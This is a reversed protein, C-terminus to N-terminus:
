FNTEVRLVNEIEIEIPRSTSVVLRLFIAKETKQRMFTLQKFIQAIMLKKQHSSLRQPATVVETNVLKKVCYHNM